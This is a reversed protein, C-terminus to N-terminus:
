RWQVELGGHLDFRALVVFSGYQTFLLRQLPFAQPTTVVSDGHLDFCALVM